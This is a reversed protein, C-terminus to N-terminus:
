NREDIIVADHNSYRPSWGGREKLARELGRRTARWIGAPKDEGAPFIEGKIVLNKRAYKVVSEVIKRKSSPYRANRDDDNLLSFWMTSVEKLVARTKTGTEPARSLVSLIPLECASCAPARANVRIIVKARRRNSPKLNEDEQIVIKEVLLEKM